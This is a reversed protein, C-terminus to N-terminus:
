PISRTVIRGNESMLALKGAKLDLALSGFLEFRWGSLSAVNPKDENAITELEDVTAIMKAAVHHKESVAQLLVKLLQVVATGGNSTVRERDM